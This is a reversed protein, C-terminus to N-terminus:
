RADEEAPLALWWGIIQLNREDSEADDWCEALVAPWGTDPWSREPPLLEEDACM